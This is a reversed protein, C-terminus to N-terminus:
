YAHDQMMNNHLALWFEPPEKSYQWPLAYQLTQNKEFVKLAKPSNWYKIVMESFATNNQYLPTKFLAEYLIKSTARGSYKQVKSILDIKLLIIKIKM